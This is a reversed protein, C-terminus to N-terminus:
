RESKVFEFKDEEDWGLGLISGVILFSVVTAVVILGFGVTMVVLLGCGGGYRYGYKLGSQIM